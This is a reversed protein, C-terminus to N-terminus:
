HGRGIRRLWPAPAPGLVPRNSRCSRSRARARDAPQFDPRAKAAYIRTVAAPNTADAALGYVTETPVAVLEGALILAAARAIAEPTAPLIETVLRAKAAQMQATM